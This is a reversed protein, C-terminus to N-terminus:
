QFKALMTEVIVGNLFHPVPYYIPDKQVIYQCSTPLINIKCGCLVWMKVTRGFNVLVEKEKRKTIENDSVFGINQM